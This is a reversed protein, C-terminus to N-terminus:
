VHRATIKYIFLTKDESTLLTEFELGRETLLVFFEREKVEDRRESALLAFADPPKLLVRFLHALDNWVDYNSNFFLDSGVILDFEEYQAELASWSCWDLERVEILSSSRNSSCNIQLLPMALARETAVCRAAGLQVLCKSLLGLGAGLELVRKGQIAELPMTNALYNALLIGCDWQTSGNGAAFVSSTDELLTVSLADNVQVNREVLLSLSPAQHSATLHVPLRRTLEEVEEEKGVKCSDELTAAAAAKVSQQEKRRLTSILRVADVM